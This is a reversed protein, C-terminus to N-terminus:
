GYVAYNDIKQDIKDILACWKEQGSIVKTGMELYYVPLDLAPLKVFDKETTLVIDVEGAFKKLREVDVPEHDGLIWEASIKM